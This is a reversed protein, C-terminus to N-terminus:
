RRMYNRLKRLPRAIFRTVAYRDFIGIAAIDSRSSRQICIGPITVRTVAGANLSRWVNYAGDAHMPGAEIHGAPRTLILELFKRISDITAAGQFGICHAQQIEVTGEIPTGWGHCYPKGNSAFFHGGYWIQWESNKLGILAERLRTM